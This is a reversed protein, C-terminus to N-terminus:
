GIQMGHIGNLCNIDDEFYYNDHKMEKYDMQTKVKMVERNREDKTMM